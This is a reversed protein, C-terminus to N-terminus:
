EILRDRDAFVVGFACLHGNHEMQIVARVLVKNEFGDVGAEAGDHYISRRLAKLLVDATRLLDHVICVQAANDDLRLYAM